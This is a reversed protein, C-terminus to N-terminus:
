QRGNYGVVIAAGFQIQDWIQAHAGNGFIDVVQTGALREDLIIRIPDTTEFGHGSVGLTWCGDRRSKVNGLRTCLNNTAAPQNVGGRFSGKQSIVLVVRCGAERKWALGQPNRCWAIGYHM